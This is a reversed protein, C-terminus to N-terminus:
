QHLRALRDAHEAGMGVRRADQDGVGIEYRMPCVPFMKVQEVAFAQHHEALHRGAGPDVDAGLANNLAGVLGEDLEASLM